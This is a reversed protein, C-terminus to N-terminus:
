SQADSQKDLNELKEWDIQKYRVIENGDRDRTVRRDLLHWKGNNIQVMLDKPNYIKKFDCVGSPQHDEPRLAFSYPQYDQNEM